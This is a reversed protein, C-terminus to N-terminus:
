LVLKELWATGLNIRLSPRSVLRLGKVRREQGKM